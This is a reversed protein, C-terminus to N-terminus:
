VGGCQCGSRPLEYRLCNCFHRTTSLQVIAVRGNVVTLFDPVDDIVEWCSLRRSWIWLEDDFFCYYDGEYEISEEDGYAM